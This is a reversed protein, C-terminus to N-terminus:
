RRAKLLAKIRLQREVGGLGEAREETREVWTRAHGAREGIDLRWTRRQRDDGQGNVQNVTAEADGEAAGEADGESPTRQIPKRLMMHLHADSDRGHTHRLFTSRTMLEIDVHVTM